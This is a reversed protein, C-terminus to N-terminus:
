KLTDHQTARLTVPGVLGSEALPKGKKWLKWSTFSQRGAASYFYCRYAYCGGLKFWLTQHPDFSPVTKSRM